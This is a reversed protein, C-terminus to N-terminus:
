KNLQVKHKLKSAKVFWTLCARSFGSLDGLVQILSSDSSLTNNGDSLGSSDSCNRQCSPYSLLLSSLEALQYM